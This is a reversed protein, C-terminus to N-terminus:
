KPWYGGGRDVKKCGKGGHVRRELRLERRDPHFVRGEPAWFARVASIPNTDAYKQRTGLDSLDFLIV